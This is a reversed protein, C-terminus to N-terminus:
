EMLIVHFFPSPGTQKFGTDLFGHRKCVNHRKVEGVFTPIIYGLSRVDIAKTENKIPNRQNCGKEKNSMTLGWKPCYRCVKFSFSVSCTQLTM